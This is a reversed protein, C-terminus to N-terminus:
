LKMQQLKYYGVLAYNDKPILKNSGIYEPMPENLINSDEINEKYIQYAKNSIRQLLQFLSV